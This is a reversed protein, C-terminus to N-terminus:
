TETSRAIANQNMWEKIGKHCCPCFHHEIPESYDKPMYYIKDWYFPHYFVGENEIVCCDGYDPVYSINDTM